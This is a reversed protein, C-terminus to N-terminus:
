QFTPLTCLPAIRVLGSLYPAVSHYKRGDNRCQGAVGRLRCNWAPRGSRCRWRKPDNWICNRSLVAGSALKWITDAIDFRIFTYPM